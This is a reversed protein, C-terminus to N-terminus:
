WEMVYDKPACSVCGLGPAVVGPWWARGGSEEAGRRAVAGEVGGGPRRERSVAATLVAGTLAAGTVAKTPLAGGIGSGRCRVRGGSGDVGRRGM